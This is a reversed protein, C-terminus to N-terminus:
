RSPGRPSTEIAYSGRLCPFTRRGTRDEAVCHSFTAGPGITFCETVISDIVRAHAGVAAGPLTISSEVFANRCVMTGDGLVTPGVILTGEAISCARGLLVTGVIRARPSICSASALWTDGQGRDLTAMGSPPDALLLRSAAFYDDATSILFSDNSVTRLEVPIAGAPGGALVQALDGPQYSGPGVVCYGAPSCSPGKVALVAGAGTSAAFEPLGSGPLANPALVLLLEGVPISGHTVTMGEPPQAAALLAQDQSAIVVQRV